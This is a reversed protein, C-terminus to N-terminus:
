PKSAPVPLDRRALEGFEDRRKEWLRAFERVKEPRDGALNRTETRDTELDYLEWPQERAAVLKWSGLRIARNGEHEWWLERPAVASEHGFSDVLSVGPARPISIGDGRSLPAAGAVELITPVLDIV